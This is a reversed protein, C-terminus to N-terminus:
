DDYRQLTIHTELQKRVMDKIQKEAESQRKETPAEGIAERQFPVKAKPDMGMVTGSRFRKPQGRYFLSHFLFQLLDNLFATIYLRQHKPAM